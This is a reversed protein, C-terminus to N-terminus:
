IVTAELMGGVMGMPLSTKGCGLYVNDLQHHNKLSECVRATRDRDEVVCYIAPHTLERGDKWLKYRYAREYREVRDNMRLAAREIEGTLYGGLEKQIFEIRTIGEVTIGQQTIGKTIGRHRQVARKIAEKQKLKDKYM